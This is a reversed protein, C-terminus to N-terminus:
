EPLVRIFLQKVQMLQKSDKGGHEYGVKTHIAVTKGSFTKSVSAAYQHFARVLTLRHEIFSADLPKEASITRFIMEIDKMVDGTLNEQLDKLSLLM